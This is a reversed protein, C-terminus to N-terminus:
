TFLDYSCIKGLHMEKYLYFLKKWKDWYKWYNVKVSLICFSMELMLLEADTFPHQSKLNLTFESFINNGNIEWEEEKEHLM